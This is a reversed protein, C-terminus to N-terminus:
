KQPTPNKPSAIRSRRSNKNQLTEAIMVFDQIKGSGNIRNLAGVSAANLIKAKQEYEEAIDYLV